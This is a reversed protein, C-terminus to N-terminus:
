SARWRVGDGAGGGLATLRPGAGGRRRQHGVLQGGHCQWGQPLRAQAEGAEGADHRPAAARGTLLRSARARAQLFRSRCSRTASADRTSPPSPAASARWRSPTRSRAASVRVERRREGGDRGHQLPSADGLAESQYLALRADHRAVEDQRARLRGGAQRACVARADHERRRRRRDRRGRGRPDRARRQQGGAPRLRLASQGDAGRGPRAARGAAAGHARRQPQGRRGPERLGSDCGRRCRARVGARKVAEAIVLAALDDPRVEKLAGAYKGIPTRVASLIVVEDQEAM